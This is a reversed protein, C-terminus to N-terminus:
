RRLGSRDHITCIGWSGRLLNQLEICSGHQRALCSSRVENNQADRRRKFERPRGYPQGSIGSPRRRRFSCRKM